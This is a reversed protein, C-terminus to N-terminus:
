GAAQPSPRPGARGEDALAGVPCREVCLGCGTCRGYDIVALNGEVRIAGTPCAKECVRCALCGARCARRVRAAEQRNRCLVYVTRRRPLLALAGKPCRVVCRGCGTCLSEDILPQGDPGLRIAGEPCVRVCDGLGLCAWPCAREGGGPGAAAARCQSLGQYRYLRRCNEAGGRCLLRAVRDIADDASGGAGASSAGGEGPLPGAGAVGAPAGRRAGGVAKPDCRDPGCPGPEGPGPEGRSAATLGLVAAIRAAAERGGVPCADPSARGAALAEALAACGAFGCAGCNVGPLLGEVERARLSGRAGLVKAAVALLGGLVLGLAAM